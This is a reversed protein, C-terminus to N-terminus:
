SKIKEWEYFCAILMKQYVFIISAWPYDVARRPTRVFNGWWSIQGGFWGWDVSSFLSFCLPSRQKREKKRNKEKKGSSGQSCPRSTAVCPLPSPLPANVVAVTCFGKIKRVTNWYVLVIAAENAWQNMLAAIGRGWIRPQTSSVFPLLLSSEMRPRIGTLAGPPWRSQYVPGNIRRGGACPWGERYERYQGLNNKKNCAPKKISPHNCQIIDLSPLFSRGSYHRAPSHPSLSPPPHLPRHWEKQAAECISDCGREDM